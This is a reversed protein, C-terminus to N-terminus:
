YGMFSESLIKDNKCGIEACITKASTVMGPPGFIFFFREAIDAVNEIIVNKDINGVICNKDGTKCESVIYYIKLKGLNNKFSDLEKRFAIEEDSRNAYFLIIDNFSNKEAENEIISIVPTIGIGGVLFVTKKHIDSNLVCNGMPAKFKVRDNIKLNRLKDSFSSSSLRKTIEFYNKSPGSSFSLFKNLERNSLNSEDFIVNLFQGAIFQLKDESFFRFSVVSPTRQIKEILKGSIEKPKLM